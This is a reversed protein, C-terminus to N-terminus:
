LVERCLIECEIQLTFFSDDDFSSKNLYVSVEIMDPDIKSIRAKFNNKLVPVDVDCYISFSLYFNDPIFWEDTQTIKAFDKKTMIKMFPTKPISIVRKIWSKTKPLLPAPKFLEKIQAQAVNIM